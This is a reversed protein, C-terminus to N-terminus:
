KRKVEVTCGFHEELENKCYAVMEKATKFEVWDVTAPPEYEFDWKFLSYGTDGNWAGISFDGNLVGEYMDM